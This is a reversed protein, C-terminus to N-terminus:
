WLVRGDHTALGGPPCDTDRDVSPYQVLSGTGWGSVTECYVLTGDGALRCDEAARLAVRRVEPPGTGIGAPSVDSLRWGCGGPVGPVTLASAADAGRCM